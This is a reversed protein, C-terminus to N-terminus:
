LGKVNFGLFLEYMSVYVKNLCQLSVCKVMVFKTEGMWTNKKKTDHIQAKEEHTYINATIKNASALDLNLYLATFSEPM